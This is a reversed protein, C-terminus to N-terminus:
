RSSHAVAAFYVVAAKFHLSDVICNKYCDSPPPFHFVSKAADLIIQNSTSTTGNGEVWCQSYLVQMTVESCKLAATTIESATAWELLFLRLVHKATFSLLEVPLSVPSGLKVLWYDSIGIM